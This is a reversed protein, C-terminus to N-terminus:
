EPRDKSPAARTIERELARAQDAAIADKERRWVPCETYIGGCFAFLSTPNEDATLTERTIACRCAPGQTTEGLQRGAPCTVDLERLVEKLDDVGRFHLDALPPEEAKSM